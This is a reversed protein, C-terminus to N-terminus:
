EEAGMSQLIDFNNEMPLYYRAIQLLPDLSLFFRTFDQSIKQFNYIYNLSINIYYSICLYMKNPRHLRGASKSLQHCELIIVHVKQINTITAPM